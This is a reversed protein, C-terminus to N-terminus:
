HEKCYSCCFYTKRVANSKMLYPCTELLHYAKGWDRIVTINEPYRTSPTWSTSSPAQGSSGAGDPQGHFFDSCAARLTDPMPRQKVEKFDKGELKQQVNQVRWEVAHLQVEVLKIKEFVDALQEDLDGWGRLLHWMDELTKSSGSSSKGDGQITMMKRELRMLYMVNSVIGMVVLLLLIELVMRLM